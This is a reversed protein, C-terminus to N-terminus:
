SKSRFVMVVVFASLLLIAGEALRWCLLNFTTANIGALDISAFVVWDSDPVPGYSFLRDGGLYDLGRDTGERKQWIVKAVDSNAPQGVRLLADESRAVIIRDRDFIGIVLKNSKDADPDAMALRLLDISLALAGASNGAEDKIPYILNSIWRGSLTQVPRGITFKGSRVTQQFEASQRPELGQVSDRLMANCLVRGSADLLLLNSYLPQIKRMEYLAASCSAANRSLVESSQGLKALRGKSQILFDSTRQIASVKAKEAIAQVDLMQSQYQRYTDLVLASGIALVAVSVLILLRHNNRKFVKLRTALEANLPYNM